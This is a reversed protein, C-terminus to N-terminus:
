SSLCWYKILQHAIAIPLPFRTETVKTVEWANPDFAVTSRELAEKVEERTFWRAEELEKTDVTIEDSIAEAICGIMLQSPYPWPQSSHYLVKGVKIGTEEFTERAVSEEISEGPDMFGAITSYMGKPFMSKRALLAKTQDRNTVLM